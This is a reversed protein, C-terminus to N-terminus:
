TLSTLRSEDDYALSWSGFLSGSVSTMNGAGDYAFSASQGGAGSWRAAAGGSLSPKHGVRVPRM